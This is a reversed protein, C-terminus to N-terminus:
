VSSFANRCVYKTGTWLVCYEFYISDRNRHHENHQGQTPFSLLKLTSRLASLMSCLNSLLKKQSQQTNKPSVIGIETSKLSLLFNNQQFPVGIGHFNYDM